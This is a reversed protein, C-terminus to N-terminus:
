RNIQVCAFQLGELVRVSISVAIDDHVPAVRIEHGHRKRPALAPPPQADEVLVPPEDVHLATHFDFNVAREHQIM